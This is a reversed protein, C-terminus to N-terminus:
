TSVGTSGFGGARDTKPKPPALIPSLITNQNRVLEGQCVRDGDRVSAPVTGIATLLVYLEQTYDHDIVGTGNALVLGSKLAAGSRSHLRVSFGKPIDLILGTPVLVRWGSSVTVVGNHTMPTEIGQPSYAKVQPTHLRACIDFCASGATAFTPVTAGSDPITYVGLIEYM